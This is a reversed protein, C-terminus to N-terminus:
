LEAEDIRWQGGENVLTYTSEIDSISDGVTATAKSGDGEIESVVIDDPGYDPPTFTQEFTECAQGPDSQFTQDELFQDTMLDCGGETLWTKITDEIEAEDEPALSGAAASDEGDDGADSPGTAGTAGTVASTTAEPEDDDGGCGAFLLTTLVAFAVLYDRRGPSKIV